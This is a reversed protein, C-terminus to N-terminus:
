KKYFDCRFQDILVLLDERLWKDEYYWTQIIEMLNFKNKKKIIELLIKRKEQNSYNNKKYLFSYIEDIIAGNFKNNDLIIKSLNRFCEHTIKGTKLNNIIKSELNPALLLRKHLKRYIFENFEIEDFFSIKDFYTNFLLDFSTSNIYGEDFIIVEYEYMMNITTDKSNGWTHHLHYDTLNIINFASIKEKSLYKNIITKAILKSNSEDNVLYAFFQKILSFQYPQSDIKELFITTFKSTFESKLKKNNIKNLSRICSLLISYINLEDKFQPLYENSIKKIIISTKSSDEKSLSLNRTLIKYKIYEDGEKTRKLFNESFRYYESLSSNPPAKKTIYYPRKEIIERFIPDNFKNGTNHIISDRFLLQEYKDIAKDRLEKDKWNYIIKILDHRNDWTCKNIINKSYKKRLLDEPGNLKTKDDLQEFRSIVCDQEIISKLEIELRNKEFFFYNIDKINFFTSIALLLGIISAWGSVTHFNFIKKLFIIKGSIKKLDM